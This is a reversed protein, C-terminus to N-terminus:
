RWTGGMANLDAGKRNLIHIAKGTAHPAAWSFGSPQKWTGVEVVADAGISRAKDAMANLLGDPGGYWVAGANIEGLTEYRVGAPPANDLFLVKGTHPALKPANPAMAVDVTEKMIMPSHAACGGLTAALLLLAAIRTKM